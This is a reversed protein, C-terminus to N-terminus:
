PASISELAESLAPRREELLRAAAVGALDHLGIAAALCGDRLTDPSSSDERHAGALDPKVYFAEAWFLQGGETPFQVARSDFFQAGPRLHRSFRGPLQYHALNELRWLVFGRSRLFSDIDAFLPQGRYIPNFEVEVHLIRIDALTQAAGQLVDLESGQTDLKLFDVPGFDEERVWEDLTTIAVQTTGTERAVELIPRAEIVDPDPPYVSSCAPDQTLHLIAKGRNAGLGAPVVRFSRGSYREALRGSEEEDPEFGVIKVNPELAEWLADFGGRCGADVVTIPRALRSAAENLSASAARSLYPTLSAPNEGGLTDPVM